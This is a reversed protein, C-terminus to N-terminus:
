QRAAFPLYQEWAPRLGTTSVVTVGFPEGSLRDGIAFVDFIDGATLRFAPLDLATTGCNTGAVTIKLDYLGPDLPLNAAVNPYKVNSLVPVGTDTCIDVATDNVDAAFPALHGVTLLAKGAPATTSIATTSFALPQSNAGGIAFLNYRGGSALPLTGSLAVTSTGTPLIEVLTDGPLLQVRPVFDGYAVQTFALTGNVRIDVLTGTITGAFPAFHGVTVAAPGDLGTVSTVTLPFATNNKGIAYADYIKGGVAAIAPLDLAVAGCNTGAVAISLDYIGAPVPLYPSAVGFPVNTLGPLPAGTADNCIDVRTAALTNAFPAYHAIRLKATGPAPATIDDMLAALQLPQNAGDGIAALTYQADEALTVVGSIAVTSSGTPLVEITYQGAALINVGRIIDGYVFDTFVDAGNVRVTVSTSLVNSGFPAFHAVNVVPNAAPSAPADPTAGDSQAQTVRVATFALACAAVAVFLLRLYRLVPTPM